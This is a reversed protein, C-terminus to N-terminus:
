AREQQAIWTRIEMSCHHSMKECIELAEGALEMARERQGELAYARAMGFLSFVKVDPTDQPGEAIARGYHELATSTEGTALRLNALQNLITGLYWRHEIRRAIALAQDLAEAAETFKGTRILVAGCAELAAAEKESYGIQRAFELAKRDAELAREMNGQFFCVVGIDTWLTAQAGTDGAGEALSLARDLSATAEEYRSLRTAVVGLSRLSEYLVRSGAMSASLNVASTLDAHAERLMGLNMEVHGLVALLEPTVSADVEKALELGLRAHSEGEKNRGLKESVRARQLQLRASTIGGPPVAEAVLRNWTAYDGRLELFRSMALAIETRQASEGYNFAALINEAEGDLSRPENRHTGAYMAFYSAFKIRAPQNRTTEGDAAVLPHLTCRSNETHQLLGADDLARLTAIECEAIAMAASEAFTNPATPFLCLADFARRASPPLTRACEKAVDTIITSPEHKM